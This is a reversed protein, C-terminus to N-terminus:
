LRNQQLPGICFHWACGVSILTAAATEAVPANAQPTAVPIAGRVTARDRGGAGASHQGRRARRCLRVRRCNRLVVDERDIDTGHRGGDHCTPKCAMCNNTNFTELGCAQLKRRTIGSISIKRAALRMSVEVQFTGYRADRADAPLSCLILEAGGLEQSL